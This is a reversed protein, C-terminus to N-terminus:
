AARVRNLFEGVADNLRSAQGSLAEASELVHSAANGTEGSAQSVANINTNVEDAAASVQQISISIEQTSSGQEGVAAAIASSIDDVTRITQGISGIAGVAESTTEQIATIQGGIEDTARATQDALSKVETAVVAFGKGAEGARAAEITANLALLNTQSAIDNILEVVEGIKRAAEELGLVRDNATEAETVANRATNASESVQRTIEQISASLEEAASAVTQVSTTTEESAAAVAASQTSAENANTQLNTANTKLNESADSIETVVGGVEQEFIEALELLNKRREEAAKEEALHRAEEAKEESARQAQEMQMHSRLVEREKEESERQLQKSEILGKQFDKLAHAVAGIEDRSGSKIEIDLEDAQLSRIASLVSQLPRAITFKVLMWASILAILVGAIASITVLQVAFQEHHLAKVASKETFKEIEVLLAELDHNLTAEEKEIELSLPRAQTMNGATILAVAERAHEEFVAHQKEYKTLAEFVHHFEAKAEPTRAVKEAATAMDEGVKVEKAILKSYKDFSKWAKDFHAKAGAVTALEEGYRFTREVSISQELQHTTIKSIMEVMPADREAIAEIEHLIQQMQYIAIGSVACLFFLCIAVVGGIKRGVTFLGNSHQTEPATGTEDASDAVAAAEIKAEPAEALADSTEPAATEPSTDNSINTDTM